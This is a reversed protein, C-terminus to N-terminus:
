LKALARLKYVSETLSDQTKVEIVVSMDCPASLALELYKNIDVNGSYLPNHDKKGDFDHLHMHAVRSINKMMFDSIQYGSSADHGIDWTYHFSDYKLIENFCNLAYKNIGINEFCIKCVSNKAYGNIEALSDSFIKIFEGDNKENIWTKGGPITFYIGPHVHLNIAAAGIEESIDMTEKIFKLYGNRITKHYDAIDIEEPLHITIGIEDTMEKNKRTFDLIKNMDCYPLNMNLEIFDLSLKKCLEVNQALGGYEILAPMGLKM